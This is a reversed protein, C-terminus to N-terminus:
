RSDFSCVFWFGFPELFFSVLFGVLFNTALLYLEVEASQSLFPRAATTTYSSEDNVLSNLINDSAPALSAAAASSPTQIELNVFDDDGSTSRLARKILWSSTEAIDIFDAMRRSYLADLNFYLQKNEIM